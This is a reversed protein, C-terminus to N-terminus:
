KVIVDITISESRADGGSLESSARFVYSESRPASGAPIDFKLSLQGVNGAGVGAVVLRDVSCVDGSRCLSPLWEGGREVYVVLNDTVNGINTVTLGLECSAGATCELSNGAADLTVGYIFAPTPTPPPPVPTWTETPIPVPTFTPTNTPTPTPLLLRVTTTYIKTNGDPLVVTLVFTEDEDRICEEQDGTGGTAINEVYVARVNEVTWRLETCEGAMLAQDKTSFLVLPPPWTPTITPTPKPTAEEEKVEEEAAAENQSTNSVSEAGSQVAPASASNDNAVIENVTDILGDQASDPAPANQPPTPVPIRVNIEPIPTSTPAPIFRPSESDNEGPASIDSPSVVQSDGRESRNDLNSLVVVISTPTVAKPFNITPTPAVIALMDANDPGGDDEDRDTESGNSEAEGNESILDDGSGVDVIAQADLQLGSEDAVIDSLAEEGASSSGDPTATHVIYLAPNAPDEQAILVQEVGNSRQAPNVINIAGEVAPSAFLNSRVVQFSLFAAMVGGCLFTGLFLTTAVLWVPSFGREDDFDDEDSWPEDSTFEREIRTGLSSAGSNTRKANASDVAFDILEFADDAQAVNVVIQDPDLPESDVMGFDITEPGPEKPYTLKPLPSFGTPFLSATPRNYRQADQFRPCHTCGGFLCYTAQDGLLLTGDVFNPNAFCHNEFSPHSVGPKQNQKSDLTGLYPCTQQDMCPHDFSLIL